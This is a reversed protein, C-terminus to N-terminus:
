FFYSDLVPSLSSLSWRASFPSELSRILFIIVTDTLFRVMIFWSPKDITIVCIGSAYKAVGGSSLPPLSAPTLGRTTVIWNVGGCEELWALFV